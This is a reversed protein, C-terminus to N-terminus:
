ARWNYYEEPKRSKKAWKIHVGTGQEANEKEYIDATEM